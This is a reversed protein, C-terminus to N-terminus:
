IVHNSRDWKVINTFEDNLVIGSAIIGYSKLDAKEGNINRCLGGSENVILVGAAFDWCNLQYEFYGDFRSCAIWCLDLAASGMRRLGRIKLHFLEKVIDLTKEMIIGRDYYFGTCIISQNIDEKKSAEIKNGNLFAGENLTAYFMEDKSPDYVVGVKVVGKEAYAISISYQPIGNAFNNTGDLPDIIWLNKSNIDTESLSEEGLISHDSFKELIVKKIINESKIDADTVLDNIDKFDVKFEDKIALIQKSALKAAKIAIELHTNM